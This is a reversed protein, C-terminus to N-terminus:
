TSKFKHCTIMVFKFGLGLNGAPHNNNIKDWYGKSLSKILLTSHVPLIWYLYFLSYNDVLKYYVGKEKHLHPIFNIIFGSEELKKLKELGGKGLQSKGLKKLLERQGIGNRHSAIIKVINEYVESNKFLSSFLNDFEQLLFGKRKFALSEIVQTASLGKEIQNLYHPVGGMSMYLDVIQKNSLLIGKERLFSKTEPLNLPELCIHKTIRNHLGGTNNVINDIIWSAASGCIILKIRSDNSWYQNWFYDLNQLLRSNQTAMWPFEDFFLVIKDKKSVTEFANTLIKFTEDWNKGEALQIGGFFVDGIQQTFHKIQQSMPADKEGTISFFILKKKKFFNKILFTKGVRRRGYLALFEPAKSSLLSQLIRTENARGVIVSM